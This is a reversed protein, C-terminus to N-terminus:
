IFRLYTDSSNVIELLRLCSVSYKIRITVTEIVKRDFDFTLISGTIPFRLLVADYSDYIIKFFYSYPWNSM